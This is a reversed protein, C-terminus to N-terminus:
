NLKVVIQEAHKKVLESFLARLDGYEVESYIAKNIVFKYSLQVINNITAIQYYVSASGGKMKLSVPQPLETVEANEPLNLKFVYTLEAPYVFDVPYKRDETKFPNSTIQEFLLPNIYLM